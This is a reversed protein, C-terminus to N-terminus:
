FNYALTIRSIFDPDPTSTTESQGYMVAEVNPMLHINDDLELDIGGIFLTSEALNSFPIYDIDGAAPNPEFLHDVRLIGRTKETIAFHAFASAINFYQVGDNATNEITQWAYLVGSSFQDDRYGVFGQLTSSYGNESQNYDGYAEAVIEDTFNYGLSLMVKKGMDLEAGNSNGNGVMLHYNLKEDSDLTGQMSIGFDRSSGFKQLDLPTKELSRYSWLDEILGWTPTSSIGAYIAHRDNKWKLYADKVVPNMKSSTTFDGPSNMELRLRSSFSESLKRDYTLYIRRIWFGNNGELNPNHSSSIWYFDGFFTGELTGTEGIKVQALGNSVFVSILLACLLIIHKM